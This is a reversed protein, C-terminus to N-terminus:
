YWIKRYFYAPFLTDISRSQKKNMMKVWGIYYYSIFLTTDNIVKIKGFPKGIEPNKVDPYKRKIGIDFTCDENIEWYFIMENDVIKTPFWYVCMPFFQFYVKGPKFYLAYFSGKDTWFIIISDTELLHIDKSYPKISDKKKKKKETTLKKTNKPKSIISPCSISFIAITTIFILTKM